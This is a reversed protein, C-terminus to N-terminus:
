CQPLHVWIRLGGIWNGNGCDVDTLDIEINDAM